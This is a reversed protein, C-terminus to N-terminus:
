QPALNGGETGAIKTRRSRRRVFIAGSLDPRLETIM